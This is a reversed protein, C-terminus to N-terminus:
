LPAEFDRLFRVGIQGSVLSLAARLPVEALAMAAGVFDSRHQGLHHTHLTVVHGGENEAGAVDFAQLGYVDWPAHAQPEHYIGTGHEVYDAYDEDSEWGVVLEAGQRRVHARLGAALNGTRRPAEARVLPTVIGETTRGLAERAANTGIALTVVSATLREALRAASETGVFMVRFM